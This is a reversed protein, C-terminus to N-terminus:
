EPDRPGDWNLYLKQRNKPDVNRCQSVESEADIAQKRNKIHNRSGNALACPIIGLGWIMKSSWTPLRFILWCKKFNPLTPLVIGYFWGDPFLTYWRYFHHHSSSPGWSIIEVSTISGDLFPVHIRQGVRHVSEVDVTIPNLTQTHRPAAIPPPIVIRIPFSPFM